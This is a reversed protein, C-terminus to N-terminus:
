YCSNNNASFYLTDLSKSYFGLSNPLWFRAEMSTKKVGGYGYLPNELCVETQQNAVRGMDFWLEILRILSNIEGSIILQDAQQTFHSSYRAEVNACSFYFEPLVAEENHEFPFKCLSDPSYEFSQFIAQTTKMGWFLPRKPYIFIQKIQSEPHSLQIETFSRQQFLADLAALGLQIYGTMEAYCEACDVYHNIEFPLDNDIEYGGIFRGTKRIVFSDHIVPIDLNLPSISLSSDGALYQIQEILNNNM